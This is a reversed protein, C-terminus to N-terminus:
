SRAERRAEEKEEDTAERMQLDRKEKLRSEVIEILKRLVWKPDDEISM